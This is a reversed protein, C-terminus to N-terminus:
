AAKSKAARGKRGRAGKEAGDGAEETLAADMGGTLWARIEHAHDAVWQQYIAPSPLPAQGEGPEYPDFAIRGMAASTKAGVLADDHFEALLDAMCSRALESVGDLGMLQFSHILQSGTLLVETNFIMQSGDSGPLDRHAHRTSLRLQTLDDALPLSAEFMEFPIRPQGDVPPVLQEYLLWANERCVLVCDHVRLLGRMIQDDMVGAFLDWAPCFQRALRRVTLNVHAGDAGTEITGGALLAHIRRDPVDSTKLGLLALLRGFIIDRWLGRVANGAVFPRLSVAGTLPSVVRERRFMTVNGTKQDAGHALNSVLTWRARFARPTILRAPLTGTWPPTTSHLANTQFLAEEGEMPAATAFTAFFAPNDNLAIRLAEFDLAKTVVDWRLCVIGEGAAGHDITPLGEPVFLKPIFVSAAGSSKEEGDKEYAGGSLAIEFRTALARIFAGASRESVALPVLAENLETALNRLRSAQISKRDVRRWLARLLYALLVTTQQISKTTTM